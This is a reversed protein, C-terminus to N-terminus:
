AGVKVFGKNEVIFNTDALFKEILAVIEAQTSAKEVYRKGNYTTRFAYYTSALQKYGRVGRYSKAVNKHISIGKYEYYEPKKTEWNLDTVVLGEIKTAM